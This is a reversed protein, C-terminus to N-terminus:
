LDGHSALIAELRLPTFRRPLQDSFPSTEWLLPPLQNKLPSSSPRSHLAKQSPNKWVQTKSPPNLPLPCTTNSSQSYLPNRDLAQAHFLCSIQAVSYLYLVLFQRTHLATWPTGTLFPHTKIQSVNFRGLRNGANTLLSRFTMLYTIYELVVPYVRSTSTSLSTLSPSSSRVRPIEAFLDTHFIVIDSFNIRVQHNTIRDYTRRIDKAFFPTVGYVLEYVMVGLSWWDTERGYGGEDGPIFIEETADFAVLADEQM